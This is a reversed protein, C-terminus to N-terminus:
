LAAAGATVETDAPVEDAETDQDRESALRQVCLMDSLKCPQM